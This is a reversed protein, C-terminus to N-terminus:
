AAPAGTHSIDQARGRLRQDRDRVYHDHVAQAEEESDCVAEVTGLPVTPRGADAEDREAGGPRFWIM